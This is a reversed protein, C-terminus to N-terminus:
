GAYGTNGSIICNTITPSSSFCRIGGGWNGNGKLITFGDLISGSGEGSNFTVVSGSSNGDIITSDAGNVSKVTIIKGLFNINEVYTGDHVLVTDGTDADNIAAQISAYTKGEGVELTAADATVTILCGLSMAVFLKLLLSVKKM